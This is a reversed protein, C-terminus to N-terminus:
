RPLEEPEACTYGGGAPLRCVEHLYNQPLEGTGALRKSTDLRDLYDSCVARYYAERRTEDAYWADFASATADAVSAGSTMRDAFTAGIDAFVPMRRLAQWLDDRGAEAEAWAVLATVAAADAELVFAARATAEMTLGNQLCIGRTWQELHRLEHVLILAQAGPPLGDRLVIRPSTTELYGRAAIGRDEICLPPAASDWAEALSPFGDFVPQMRDLLAALKHQADSTPTQGPALCLASGDPHWPEPTPEAAPAALPLLTLLLIACRM